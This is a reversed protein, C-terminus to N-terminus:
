KRLNEGKGGFIDPRKKSLNELNGRIDVEDGINQNGKVSPQQDNKKVGLCTKLHRTM